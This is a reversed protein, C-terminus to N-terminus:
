LAYDAGDKPLRGSRIQLTLATGILALFAFIGVVLALNSGLQVAAPVARSADSFNFATGWLTWYTIVATIWLVGAVAAAWVYGWRSTARAMIVSAAVVVGLLGFTALVLAPLFLLGALALFLSTGLGYALTRRVNHRTNVM